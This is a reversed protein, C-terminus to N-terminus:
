RTNSQLNKAYGKTLLKMREREPLSALKELDVRRKEAMAKLEEPHDRWMQEELARKVVIEALLDDAIPCGDFPAGRGMSTLLDTSPYGRCTGPRVPYVSCLSNRLFSCPQAIIFTGDGMPTAKLQDKLRKYEVHLYDAVGKLEEKRFRLHVRNSCCNGCRKCLTEQIAVIMAVETELILGLSSVAKLVDDDRVPPMMLKKRSLELVRFAHRGSFPKFDTRALLRDLPSKESM